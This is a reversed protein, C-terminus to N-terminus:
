KENFSNEAKEKARMNENRWVNSTRLMQEFLSRRVWFGTPSLSCGVSQGLFFRKQYRVSGQCEEMGIHVPGGMDSGAKM